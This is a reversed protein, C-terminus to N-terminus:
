QNHMMKGTVVNSNTTLKYTYIGPPLMTGDFDVKYVVGAKADANFMEKILTGKIDYVNLVVHDDDPVIFSIATSGSFPNPYNRVDLPEESVSLPETSSKGPPTSACACSTRINWISNKGSKIQEALFMGKLINPRTNEANEVDINHELEPEGQKMRALYFIGNAHIGKSLKVNKEVYFIVEQEDPNINSLKEVDINQSVRMRTCQIFKLTAGEKMKLKRIDVVQATLILTANKGIEVDKYQTGTMTWTTNNPVKINVTGPTGTEFDPLTYAAPMYYANALLSSGDVNIQKAQAFTGPGTIVSNDKLEVKGGVPDLAGIGGSNILTAQMYVKKFAVMLYGPLTSITQYQDVAQNGCQDELSWIRTYIDSGFGSSMEDSYTAEIDQSCNDQEDTVDGTITPLINYVGNHDGYIVIDPPRTFAPPMEDNVTIIQNCTEFNENADTVKYTRTIKYRNPCTQDSIVDSVWEVTVDGTCNDSAIVLSIDPVPVDGSCSVEIAEPCTIVPSTIDKVVVNQTQSSTNGNGDDYMWTVVTTGQATIPLTANHTGTITGTCNDTATPATLSTVGCEATVDALPDAVPVPVTIDDVIVTQLQTSTNGDGDDYTWTIIYTGQASYSIPDNTTATVIGTCNDTATPASVSASCEGTVVPLNAVDPVPATVNAVIVNQTQTVVNGNGDDYTWTVVTTGQATIPLTANHTGTIIGACNDTATPATLATIECEATVDALPDVVPVPATVDDVIVTQLQTSTNGNV